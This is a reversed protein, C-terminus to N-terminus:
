TRCDRFSERRGPASIRRSDTGAIRTLTMVNAYFSWRSGNALPRSIFNYNLMPAIFPIESQKDEIRLGQFHFAEASAYSRGRFGEIFARRPCYYYVVVWDGVPDAARCETAHSGGGHVECTM